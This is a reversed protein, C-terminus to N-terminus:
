RRMVGLKAPRRRVLYVLRYAAAGTSRLILRKGLNLM